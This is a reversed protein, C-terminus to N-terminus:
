VYIVITLAAFILFITGRTLALSIIPRAPIVQTKELAAWKHIDVGLGAIEIAMKLMDRRSRYRVIGVQDWDDAGGPHLFRGQVQGLFVPHGGYKLLLPLIARSYRANAAMPDDDFPSGEPYLAKQRFKMLNVMYFERGDDNKTLERFQDLIPSEETQAQKGARHKMETLLNEVEAQSLPKGRGGYWFLFALYLLVFVVSIVIHGILM